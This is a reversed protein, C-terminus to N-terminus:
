LENYVEAFDKNTESHEWIKWNLVMVLETLYEYNTKWENFARKYTDKIAKVGGIRDAISFDMYFTTKPKYGTMAEINWDKFVM